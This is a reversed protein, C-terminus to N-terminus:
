IPRLALGREPSKLLLVARERRGDRHEGLPASMEVEAVLALADRVARALKARAEIHAPVATIHHTHPARMRIAASVAVSFPQSWLRHADRASWRPEKLQSGRAGRSPPRICDWRHRGFALLTRLAISFRHRALPNLCRGLGGGGRAM